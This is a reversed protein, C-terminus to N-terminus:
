FTGNEQCEKYPSDTRAVIVAHMPLALQQVDVDCRM